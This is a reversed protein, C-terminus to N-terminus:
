AEERLWVRIANTSSEPEAKVFDALQKKLVQTRLAMAALAEADPEVEPPAAAGAALAAAPAESPPLAALARQQIPRLM